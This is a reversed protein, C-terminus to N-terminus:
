RYHLVTPLVDLNPSGLQNRSLNAWKGAEPHTAVLTWIKKAEEEADSALMALALLYLQRYLGVTNFYEKIHLVDRSDKLLLATNRTFFLELGPNMEYHVFVYEPDRDQLVEIALSLSTTVSLLLNQLASRYNGQQLALLGLQEYAARVPKDNMRYLELLKDPGENLFKRRMAEIREEPLPDIEAEDVVAQLYTHMSEWDELRRAVEALSYYANIRESQPFFNREESLADKYKAMAATYEGEAAFVHGIWMHVNAYQPDDEAITRFISLASGLQGADYNQIGQEMRLWQPLPKDQCYLFATTFFLLAVLVCIQILPKLRTNM